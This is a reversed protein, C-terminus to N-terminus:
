SASFVANWSYKGPFIARSYAEPSSSEFKHLPQNKLGYLAWGILHTGFSHGVLDIRDWGESQVASALFHRFRRVVFWRMFPLIFAVISLYGYKYNIVM